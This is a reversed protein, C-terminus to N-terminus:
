TKKLRRPAVIQQLALAGDIVVRQGESLGEIVHVTDRDTDGIRIERRVFRGGGEDVFAYHRGGAFFVARTPVVLHSPVEGSVEAVVFMEGKLKRSANDLSARVKIVRTVADLFDAVATVRAEFTEGPYAPSRIRITDGVRIRPLRAPL